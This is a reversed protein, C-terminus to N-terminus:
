TQLFRHIASVTEAPASMHPCHGTAELQVLTGQPLADRTYQGASVPAIPDSKCQLVLTPMGVRPLEHRTDSTFSVRAFHRAIAPDTRCFSNTLEDGLEPREANGMIVPAMQSSWGLYNDDLADLLQEIDHRSFGGIYSSDNVYCPSPAVLVLSEFLAPEHISALVGMMCGVSHGVFVTRSLQLSRCIEIIDAAYGRLSGYKEYSYASLDSKGAGVHDFVVVRYRERFAPTMFRWVSQDCGFGHAFLLTRPGTGSVKVNNRALVDV